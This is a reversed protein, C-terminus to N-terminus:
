LQELLTKHFTRVPESENYKAWNLDLLMTMVRETQFGGDVQQLRYLSRIMLGAGVLLILSVAMQVTVLAHRMKRGGITIGDSAGPVLTRSTLAAPLAGFVLGTLVSLALTFPLM